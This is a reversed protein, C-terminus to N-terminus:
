SQNTWDENDKVIYFLKRLSKGFMNGNVTNYDADCVMEITISDEVHYVTPIGDWDETVMLLKTSTSPTSHDQSQSM